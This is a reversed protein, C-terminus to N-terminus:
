SGRAEKEGKEARRMLIELPVLLLLTSLYILFAVYNGLSTLGGPLVGVLLGLVFTWAPLVRGGWRSLRFSGVKHGNM